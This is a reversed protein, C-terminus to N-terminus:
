EYRIDEKRPWPIQRALFWRVGILDYLGRWARKAMTYKSTGFKRPRHNVPVEVIRLGANRLLAPLFRHLGNFPVLHRVDATRM